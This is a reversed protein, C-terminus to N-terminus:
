ILRNPEIWEIAGDSEDEGERSVISMCNHKVGHVNNGFNQICAYANEPMRTM